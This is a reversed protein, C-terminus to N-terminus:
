PAPELRRGMRGFWGDRVARANLCMHRFARVPDRALNAVPKAAGVVLTVRAAGTLSGRDRLIWILNRLSYYRRWSPEELRISPGPVAGLRGAEARARLWTEGSAHLAYGADALRLGLELDDFGFFLHARPPGVERLANVSYFPFQNGAVYDVPVAGHLEDDPVRVMRGARRDFRAGTLGVAGIRANAARMEAGFAALVEFADDRTPPDDDDLVVVWDDPEARELVHEVGLAIGGAPGLNEPAVVYDANAAFREVVSRAPATPDNDIVLLRELPLTQRAVAVLM